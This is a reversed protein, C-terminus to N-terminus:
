WMTSYFPEYPPESSFVELVLEDCYFYPNEPLYGVRAKAARDGAPAGLLEARGSSAFLLGMLIKITTTKGAGNPGLLGFIEGREVSLTVGRLAEV